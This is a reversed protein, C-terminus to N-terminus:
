ESEVEASAPDVQEFRADLVYKEIREPSSLQSEISPDDHQYFRFFTEQDFYGGGPLPMVFWTSYQLIYSAQKPADPKGIWLTMKVITNELLHQLTEDDQLEERLEDFLDSPAQEVWERADLQVQIVDTPTSLVSSDALKVAEDMFPLWDSFGRLPDFPLMREPEGRFWNSGRSIYSQDGFHFYRYQRTAVRGNVLYADGPRYVIGDYMSTTTRRGINNKVYGTYWYSQAEEDTDTVEIAHELLERADFAATDTAAAVATFETVESPYTCGATLLMTTVATGAAFMRWRKSISLMYDTIKSPM